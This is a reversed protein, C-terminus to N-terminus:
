MRDLPELGLVKMGDSLVEKARKFLIYREAQTDPCKENKVNLVKLARSTANSLGFLYNVLNCAELGDICGELVEEFRAIEVILNLAEVEKLKTFMEVYKDELFCNELLLSNLRCHTYQLKIGTDGTMQLAKDWHLMGLIDAVGEDPEGKTTPSDKQRQFMIDKAEDLVDKLFITNGTRTSMGKIRGFKIHNLRDILDPNARSATEFCAKFHDTQSNDVIYLMEDFNFREFRDFIAAVDRALYLTSGDSKIIPVRRDGIEVLKRGDKEDKLLQCKNLFDITDQIDKQSYQSEWHYESFNVGLRGYTNQLEELTFQRFTEWRKRYSSNKNDELDRFVARAKEAISADKTSATNATVYSNYLTKIPDKRIDEDSLNMMEVGVQLMGFQTGWDGLYNLRMVDNGTFELLNGIFNGIITSRLHGVHFPKAINPSSFEVVFRRRDTMAYNAPYALSHEVFSDQGIRFILKKKEATISEIDISNLELGILDNYNMPIKSKSLQSTNRSTSKGGSNESIDVNKVILQNATHSQIDFKAAAFIKKLKQLIFSAWGLILLLGGTPAANKIPVPKGTFAKYYLAGSFLITGFTLLSGTLLPKRALPVGLLAISHFFHFQNARAFVDDWREKDKYLMHSGLSAAIIASLGSLGALRVFNHHGGSLKWLKLNNNLPNTPRSAASTSKSSKSMVKIASSGANLIGQSVPNGVALWNMSDTLGM